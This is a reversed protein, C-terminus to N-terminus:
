QKPYLRERLLMAPREVCYYLVFTAVVVMLWFLCYAAEGHSQSFDHLPGDIVYAMMLNSMFMSYSLISLVMIGKAVKGRASKWSNLAPLSLAVAAPVLAPLIVVSYFDGLSYGISKEAM